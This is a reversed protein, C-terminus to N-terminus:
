MWGKQIVLAVLENTNKVNFKKLMNKRQTDITQKSLYLQDAIAKSSLGEILLRIISKERRTIAEPSPRFVQEVEVDIYSPENDMGIFSLVPRGEPKLHSIDTHVVLTNLINGSDNHNLIAIQQMMRRYQGDAQQVRYDCRTKYKYLKEVPLTQLFAATRKEYNLFLSQDEPHIKELFFGTDVQEPDYGLVKKIEPSTYRISCDPLNFIFYYYEGTQFIHLLKKHIDLQQQLEAAPLLDDAPVAMQQWIRTAERFIFPNM